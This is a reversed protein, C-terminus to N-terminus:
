EDIKPCKMREKKSIKNDLNIRVEKLNPYGSKPNYCGFFFDVSGKRKEIKKRVVDTNLTVRYLYKDHDYEIFIISVGERNESKDDDLMSWFADIKRAEKDFEIEFSLLEDNNESGKCEINTFVPMGLLVTGNYDPDDMWRPGGM